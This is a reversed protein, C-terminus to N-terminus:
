IRPLLLSFSGWRFISRLPNRIHRTASLPPAPVTGKSHRPHLREWPQRRNRNEASFSGSLTLWLWRQHGTLRSVRQGRSRGPCDLEVSAACHSTSPSLGAATGKLVWNNGQVPTAPSNCHSKPSIRSWPRSCERDPLIGHCGDRRLLILGRLKALSWDCYPSM